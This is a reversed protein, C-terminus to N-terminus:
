RLRYNVQGSTLFFLDGSPPKQTEQYTLVLYLPALTNGRQGM